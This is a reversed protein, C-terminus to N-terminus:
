AVNAEGAPNGGWKGGIKYVTAGSVSDGQRLVEQFAEWEEATLWKALGFFVGATTLQVTQVTDDDKTFDVFFRRGIRLDTTNM